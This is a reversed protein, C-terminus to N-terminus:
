TLHDDLRALTQEMARRARGPWGATVIYVRSAPTAQSWDYSERVRTGGDTPELEYRWRHGGLVRSVAAPRAVRPAWAIRRDDEFEVVENVMEYPVGWRMSMGFTAGQSLRAPGDDPADRVMGSGDIVPHQSPDALVAFVKDPPAAIM